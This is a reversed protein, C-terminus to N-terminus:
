DLKEYDTAGVTCNSELTCSMRDKDDNMFCEWSFRSSGNCNCNDFVLEGTYRNSGKDEGDNIDFPCTLCGGYGDPIMMTGSGKDTDEMTFKTRGCGDDDLARWDGIIANKCGALALLGTVVVPLVVLRHIRM